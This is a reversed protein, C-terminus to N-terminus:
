GRGYQCGKGTGGEVSAQLGRSPARRISPRLLNHFVVFLDHRDHGSFGLEHGAGSGVVRWHLFSPDHSRVKKSVTDVQEPLVYAALSRRLTSADRHGTSMNNITVM